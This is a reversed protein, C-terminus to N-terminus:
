APATEIIAPMWLRVSNILWLRDATALDDPTLTAEAIVGRAILRERYVGPLLGCSLAPTVLRGGQKIVINARSSETAQGHANILLVDDFGPHEALARDYRDRRTTKHFLAPDDANVPRAAWALRLPGSQRPGLPFVQTHAEGDRSLLLRVRHRGTPHANIAADLAALVAPSAYSFGFYAASRELRALHGPLFAYRCGDLRLTELLEFPEAPASLFRAKIRCEEYEDAEESDFTVGGGVGFHGEGTQRDFVATRIAVSFTCDGGPAVYGIAGTYFGRAAPELQGIIRMASEKPAGTISGCPFLARFLDDLGTGLPARATVTSTMQWATGLREVAFLEPVAVSGPRAIRGLDNRLLDTIMRNEAQNKPCAALAQAMATDEALTRGRPMTGKMPRTVVTEGQRSFFLEPSFSVIHHRGLDLRSCYSAAHQRALADFLAAPAGSFRCALPITYNVQYVEGQRINDRIDALARGYHDRSVLPRWPTATFPRNPAEECFDPHSTPAAYAAAFLLPTAPSPKVALGPYFASAAEYALALVIWEGNRSRATVEALVALVEQPDTTTTLWHPKAFHRNWGSSAGSFSRFHADGLM